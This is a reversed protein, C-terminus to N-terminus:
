ERPMVGAEVALARIRAKKEELVAGEARWAAREQRHWLPPRRTRWDAVFTQWCLDETLMVAVSPRNLADSVDIPRDFSGLHLRDPDPAANAQQRSRRKRRPPRDGVEHHVYPEPYM